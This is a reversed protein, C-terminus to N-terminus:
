TKHLFQQLKPDNERCKKSSKYFLIITCITIIVSDAIKLVINHSFLNGYQKLVLTVFIKQRFYCYVSDIKKPRFIELVLVNTRFRV